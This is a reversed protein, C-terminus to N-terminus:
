NSKRAEMDARVLQKIYGSASGGQERVWEYIDMENPSFKVSVQKMKERQYKASARRQAESVM